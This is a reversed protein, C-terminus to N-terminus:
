CIIQIVRFSINVLGFLVAALQIADTYAVSFFGGFLTYLACVAASIAISLSSHLGLIVSLTAGTGNM